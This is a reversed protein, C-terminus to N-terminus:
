RSGGEPAAVGVADPRPPEAALRAGLRFREVTTAGDELQREVAGLMRADRLTGASRIAQLIAGARSGEAEMVLTDGTTHVRTLHTEPPLLMTLEFLAATWRPATDAVREISRSHENLRDLSDRVGLLPGVQARIAARRDRAADLQRQAGWIEVGASAILLLVAAAALWGARRRELASRRHQETATVLRAPAAAAHAAATEGADRTVAEVAWGAAAFRRALDARRDAPACVTVAGAEAGAAAIIGAADDAPLRRLAVPAGDALVLVHVTGDQLAVVARIGPGAAAAAFWAAQAPVVGAARWGAAAAAAAVADLTRAPAAAALVPSGPAQPRGAVATVAPAAVGLFYRAADRRVVAAAEAARVPPLHLLRTEALPPLLAIRAPRSPSSADAGDVRARLDRLAVSLVAEFDAAAPELAAAVRVTRLVGGEQVIATLGDQAIAIGVDRRSGRGATMGGKM